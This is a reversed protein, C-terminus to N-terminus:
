RGNNLFRLHVCSVKFEYSADADDVIALLIENSSNPLADM